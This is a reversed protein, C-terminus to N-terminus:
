QPAMVQTGSRSSLCVGRPLLSLGFARPNQRTAKQCVHLASCSDETVTVQTLLDPPSLQHQEHYRLAKRTWGNPRQHWTFDSVVSLTAKGSSCSWPYFSTSSRTRIEVMQGARGGIPAQFHPFGASLSVCLGRCARTHMAAAVRLWTRVSM